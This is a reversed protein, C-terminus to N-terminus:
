HRHKSRRLHMNVCRQGVEGERVQLRLLVENSILDERGNVHRLLRVLVVGVVAFVEVTGALTVQKSRASARLTNAHRERVVAVKSIDETQCCVEVLLGEGVFICCQFDTRHASLHQGVVHQDVTLFVEHGVEERVVDPTRVPITNSVSVVVGCDFDGVPVVVGVRGGDDINTTQSARNLELRATELRVGHNDRLCNTVNQNIM